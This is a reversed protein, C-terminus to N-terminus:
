YIDDTFNYMLVARYLASRHSWGYYLVRKGQKRVISKPM